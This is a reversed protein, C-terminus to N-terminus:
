PVKALVGGIGGSVIKNAASAIARLRIDSNPPIIIYPCYKRMSGGSTSVSFDTVKRFVNGPRRIELAIEAIAATKELIDGYLRTVIWYDTSSLSTSAKESQNQGARIQLHVGAPTNPVGATYTDNECISITGVLDTSGSAYCRTVRALPTTLTVATQGTLTAIQSVFTLDGSSITHGEIIVTTTDSTSDSVISTIANTSVFTENYIGSPLTMLTTPTTQVFESRGFKLLDKNKAEISVADSYDALIVQKAHEIWPDRTIIYTM